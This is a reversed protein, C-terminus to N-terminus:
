NCAASENTSEEVAKMAKLQELANWWRDLKQFSDSVASELLAFDKIPKFVCAEAGWRMSRLLTMMSVMGTLMIVQIGGNHRKIERLLNLGDTNPMNIDLLVVQANTELLRAVLQDPDSLSIVEYGLPKLRTRVLDLLQQDDDLHLIKRSRTM